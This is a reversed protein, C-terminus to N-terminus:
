RQGRVGHLRRREGDRGLVLAREVGDDGALEAAGDLQRDGPQTGFVAGTDQQAVDLTMAVLFDRLHEVQREAGYLGIDVASTILQPAIELMGPLSVAGAGPGYSPCHKFRNHGRVERGVLDLEPGGAQEARRAGHVERIAALAQHAGLVLTLQEAFQYLQGPETRFVAEDFAHHRVHPDRSRRAIKLALYNPIAFPRVDSTLGNTQAM